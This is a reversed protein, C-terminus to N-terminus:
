DVPRCVHWPMPPRTWECRRTSDRTSVAAVRDEEPPLPLVRGTLLLPSSSTRFADDIVEIWRADAVCDDDIIAVM